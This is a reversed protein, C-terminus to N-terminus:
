PIEDGRAIIQIKGGRGNVWRFIVYINPISYLSSLSLHNSPLGREEERTARWFM